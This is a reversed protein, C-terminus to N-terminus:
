GHGLYDEAVLGRGDSKSIAQSYVTGASRGVDAEVYVTTGAPRELSAAIPRDAMPCALELGGPQFRAVKHNRHVAGM